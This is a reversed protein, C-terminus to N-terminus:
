EEYPPLGFLEPKFDEMSDIVLEAKRIYPQNEEVFMSKWKSVFVTRGGSAVAGKLGTISDEFILVKSFDSPPSAFRNAAVHYCDPAPKRNEVEPDDWACVAHTIYKAFFEPFNSVGYRYNIGSAGTAVAM